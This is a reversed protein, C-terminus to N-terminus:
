GGVRLTQFVSPAQGHVRKFSRSFQFPDVGLQDAVERVMIGDAHLREAAWNMKLRRLYHYPSIGAFRQFVRCLYAVDVHSAAAWERATRLELFRADAVARCREFTARARSEGGGHQDAGESLLILLAELQLACLPGSFRPAKQGFRILQDFADRVATVADVQAVQGPALNGGRLVDAGRPGVWNVFYKVLREKPDTEIRQGCGPGYAFVAGPALDYRQRGLWLRGKGAVVLELSLYPFDPRDIVYDPAVEEWGGCVVVLDRGSAAESDLYFRLARTVQTSIFGPVRTPTSVSFGFVAALGPDIKSMGSAFVTM